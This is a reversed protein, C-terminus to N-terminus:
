IFLLSRTQNAIMSVLQDAIYNHPCSNMHVEGNTSRLSQERKVQPSSHSDFMKKDRQIFSTDDCCCRLEVPFVCPLIPTFWVFSLANCQLSRPPIPTTAIIRPAMIVQLENIAIWSDAPFNQMMPVLWQLCGNWHGLLLMLCVLNFIRM